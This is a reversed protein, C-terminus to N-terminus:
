WIGQVSPILSKQADGQEFVDQAGFTVPRLSINQPKAGGFNLTLTASKRSAQVPVAVMTTKPGTVPDTIGEPVISPAPPNFGFDNSRIGERNGSANNTSAANRNGNRNANKQSQAMAQPTDYIGVPASANKQTEAISGSTSPTSALPAATGKVSDKEALDQTRNNSAPSLWVQRVILGVAILLVFSAALAMARAGPAFRSWASQRAGDSRAAALRARLRFDFDAPAAVVELSGILRRLATQEEQFVRCEACADLHAGASRSLPRAEDSEEIEIRCAKCNM